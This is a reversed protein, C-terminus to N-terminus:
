PYVCSVCTINPTKKKAIRDGTSHVWLLHISICFDIKYQVAHFLGIELRKPILVEGERGGLTASAHMWGFGRVGLAMFLFFPISRSDTLPFCRAATSCGVGRTTCGAMPSRGGSGEWVGVKGGEGGGLLAHLLWWWVCVRVALSVACGRERAEGTHIIVGRPIDLLVLPYGFSVLFLLLFFAFARSRRLLFPFFLWGCCWWWV